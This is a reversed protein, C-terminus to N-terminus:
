FKATINFFVSRPAGPLLTNFTQLPDSVIIGNSGITAIYRRDLLNNATLQFVIEKAFPLSKGSWRYGLGANLVGYAGARVDNSYTVFRKSFYQGGIQGYYTGDDYSLESKVLLKPTDVVTKGSIRVLTSGNLYNDQYTSDNYSVSNLWGLSETLRYTGGVEAGNTVVRGVNAIVPQLGLIGVGQSIGLLRNAFDVHYATAQAEFKAGRV